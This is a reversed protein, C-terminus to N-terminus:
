TMTPQPTSESVDGGMIDSFEEVSIDTGFVSNVTEILEEYTQEDTFCAVLTQVFEDDKSYDYLALIYLVQAEKIREEFGAETMGDEILQMMTEIEQFKEIDEDSMNEFIGQLRDTNMKVDGNFFGIVAAIPMVFIIVIGLIIGAITRFVKPNSLLSAAIKKLAAAVAASM